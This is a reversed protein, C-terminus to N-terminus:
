HPVLSFKLLLLGAIILLLGVWATASLRVGCLLIPVAASTITILADWTVSGFFLKRNNDGASYVLLLWQVSFVNCIVIVMPAFWWQRKAEENFYFWTAVANTLAAFALILYMLIM